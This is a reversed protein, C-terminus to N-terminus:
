KLYDWFYNINNNVIVIFNKKVKLYFCHKVRVHDRAKKLWNEALSILSIIQQLNIGKQKSGVALKCRALLLLARGRAQVSGHSLVTPLSAETLRLARSSLGLSM